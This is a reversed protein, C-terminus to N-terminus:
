FSGGAEHAQYGDQEDDGDEEGRQKHDTDGVQHTCLLEGVCSAQSRVQTYKSFLYKLGDCLKSEYCISEIYSYQNNIGRFGSPNGWEGKVDFTICFM